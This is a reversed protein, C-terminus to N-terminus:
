NESLLYSYKAYIELARSIEQKSAKSYIYKKAAERDTALLSQAYGLDIRSYLSLAFAFEEATMAAKLKAKLDQKSASKNEKNKDKQKLSQYTPISEENIVGDDIMSQTIDDIRTQLNEDNITKEVKEIAKDIKENLIPEFAKKYVIFGEIVLIFIVLIIILVIKQSKKMVRLIM